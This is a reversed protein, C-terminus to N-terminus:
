PERSLRRAIGMCRECMANGSKGSYCLVVVACFPGRKDWEADTEGPAKPMDKWEYGFNMPSRIADFIYKSEYSIALAEIATEIRREETIERKWRDFTRVGRVAIAITIAFGVLTLVQTWGFTWASAM